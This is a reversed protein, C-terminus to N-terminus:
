GEPAPTSEPTTAPAEEDVPVAPPLAVGSETALRTLLQQLAEMEAGYAAWDGNRLAAQGAEYRRNAEVILENLSVGEAM